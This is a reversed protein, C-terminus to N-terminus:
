HFGWHWYVISIGSVKRGKSATHLSHMHWEANLQLPPALASMEKYNISDSSRRTLPCLDVSCIIM